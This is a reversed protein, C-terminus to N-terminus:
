WVRVLQDQSGSVLIKKSFKLSSVIGNHKLVHLCAGTDEHWVRVESDGGGTVILRSSPDFQLCYIQGTHGRLVNVCKLDGNMWKWIRATKDTSASVITDIGLKEEDHCERVSLAMVYSQHGKLTKLNAGTKMDWIKICKDHSGSVIKENKTLYLCRVSNKHGRLSKLLQGSNLDFVQVKAAWTGAVIYKEQLVGLCMIYAGQGDIEQLCVGREIDIVRIVGDNGATAWLNSNKSSIQELCLINQVDSMGSLVSIPITRICAATGLDWVKITKDWSSSILKTHNDFIKLNWVHARHGELVTVMYNGQMWNNEIQIKKKFVKKWDKETSPLQKWRMKCFRKWLFTDDAVHKWHKCVFAVVNLVIAPPLNLFIKILIEDPWYNLPHQVFHDLMQDKNMNDLLSHWSKNSHLFSEKKM